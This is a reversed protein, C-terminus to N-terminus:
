WRFPVPASCDACYYMKGKGTDQIKVGATGISYGRREILLEGCSPCYSNNSVGGINGTYVYKLRERGRRTSEELLAPATAPADWTYDPHYASLHWPIDPSLGEIFAICRDLEEQSDNFGPILLTTIEIHVGMAFAEEIFALVAELNGGLVKKYSDPSFCKLDVNVAGTLSLVERAADRNICGSTILVNAIGRERAIAMCDLLYEFHVLPESYTYALQTFGEREAASVLAEADMYTGETDTRQSIRWNQCFPCRLNCGAFGASLIRSGPRFHYLPKKEIPDDALATIFGYFPLSGKGQRNERVRCIGSKGGPITCAHPCLTCQVTDTREGPLPIIFRPSAEKM